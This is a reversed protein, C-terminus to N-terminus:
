SRDRKDEINGKELIEKIMIHGVLKLQRMRIGLIIRRKKNNLKYSGHQNGEEDMSNETPKQQVMNRNVGTKEEDDLLGELM